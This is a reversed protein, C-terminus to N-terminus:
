WCPTQPLLLHIFLLLLLLHLHLVQRAWPVSAATACLWPCACGCPSRCGCCCPPRSPTATTGCTCSRLSRGCTGASTSGKQLSFFGFNLAKLHTCCRFSFLIFLSMTPPSLFDLSQAIAPDQQLPTTQPIKRGAM